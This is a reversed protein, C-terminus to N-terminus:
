NWETRLNSLVEGCRQHVDCNNKPTTKMNQRCDEMKLCSCTKGGPLFQEEEAAVPALCAAPTMPTITNLLSKKKWSWLHPLRIRLTLVTPQIRRCEWDLIQPSRRPACKQTRGKTTQPKAQPFFEVLALMWIKYHKRVANPTWERRGGGWGADNYHLPSQKM